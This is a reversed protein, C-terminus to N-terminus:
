RKSEKTNFACKNDYHRKYQRVAKQLDEVDKTKQYKKFKLLQKEIDTQLNLVEQADQKDKEKLIRNQDQLRTIYDEVDDFWQSSCIDARSLLRDLDNLNENMLTCLDETKEVKKKEIKEHQCCKLGFFLLLLLVLAIALDRVRIKFYKCQYIIKGMNKGERM